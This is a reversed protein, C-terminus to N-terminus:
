EGHRGGAAQGAVRQANSPAVLGLTAALRELRDPAREAALELELKQILEQLRRRRASQESLGYGAQVADQNVWVRFVGAGLPMLLAVLLLAMGLRSPRPLPQTTSRAAARM